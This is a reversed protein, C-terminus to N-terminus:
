SLDLQKNPKSENVCPSRFSPPLVVLLSVVLFTSVGIDAALTQIIQDNGSHPPRANMGHSLKPLGARMPSGNAVAM